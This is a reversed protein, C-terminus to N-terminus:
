LRELKALSAFFKKTGQGKFLVDLEQDDRTERAGVVIGEGYVAHRVRAGAAFPAALSAELPESRALTAPRAATWQPVGGGWPGWRPAVPDATHTSHRDVSGQPLDLLFRSAPNRLTRGMFTRRQCRILYLRERARTIGVYCLRREEEMRPPDDISRAHPLLTEELGVMFVVGFELGKAAHLTILTLADVREDLSDVDSVLAAEELLARLSEEPELDDYKIAVTRLEKLNDWREEGEPTGDQLFARYGSSELVRDLVEAAKLEPAAELLERLMELFGGLAALTRRSFAPPTGLRSDRTEPAGGGSEPRPDRSGLGPLLRQLAQYLALGQRSAWRSLEQVTRAGIARGPVNIIRALSLSDLPNAVVRLYALADKVERREYFRTGAVLRYPVGYRVLAEEIPRSQANTRYMVAGDAARFGGEKVLRGVEEVVYCAEEEEDYVEVLRVPLGGIKDTWLGKERREQNVQIVRQAVDLIPQTSRYNQELFVVQADAYDSEFSLINRIDASRWSYISQDPDGVVCLNRTGGALLRALAYQAVNTDQFEDVLVHLYRQQYRHLVDPQRQLLEVAQMLLDDFDLAGNAALAAQYQEYVRQVVEDFYEVIRARYAQPGVLESKAHSIASLVARPAFRKPDVGVQEMAKKVLTVQDDDDYIVFRPNLEAAEAERRLLRSCVAHFTGITLDRLEAGLLRYLREQMERAAKNTFTVAMIRYPPVGRDRILHAIRHTIVRTKGSGPGALILLPGEVVEVADRQAANLGDLIPIM